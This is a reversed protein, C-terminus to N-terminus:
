RLAEFQEGSVLLRVGITSEGSQPQTKKLCMEVGQIAGYGSCCALIRTMLMEQTEYQREQAIEDIQALLPEYDFVREMDDEDILVLLSDVVIMLDLSHEYPDPVGPGFSGIHTKLPLGEFEITTVLSM